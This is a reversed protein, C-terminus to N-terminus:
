LHGRRWHTPETYQNAAETHLSASLSSLCIGSTLRNIAVLWLNRPQRGLFIEGSYYLGTQSEGPQTEGWHQPISLQSTVTFLDTYHKLVQIPLLWWSYVSESVLFGKFDCSFFDTTSVSFLCSPICNMIQQTSPALLACLWMCQEVNKHFFQQHNPPPTLDKNPLYVQFNKLTYSKNNITPKHIPGALDKQSLGYNSM